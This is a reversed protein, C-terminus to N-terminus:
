RLRGRTEVILTGQSVTDGGKVNYYYYFLGIVAALIVVAALWGIWKRSKHEM